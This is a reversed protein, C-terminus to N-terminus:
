FEISEKYARDEAIEWNTEKQKSLLVSALTANLVFKGEVPEFKYSVHKVRRIEGKPTNEDKTLGLIYVVDMDDRLRVEVDDTDKLLGNLEQILDADQEILKPVFTKFDYTNM